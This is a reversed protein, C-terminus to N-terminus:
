VIRMRNEVDRSQGIRLLSDTYVLLLLFRSLINMKPSQYYRYGGFERCHSNLVQIYTHQGSEVNSITSDLVLYYWSPTHKESNILLTYEELHLQNM